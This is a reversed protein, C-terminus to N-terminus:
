DGLYRYGLPDRFLTFVRDLTQRESRAHGQAIPTEPGQLQNKSSRIQSSILGINSFESSKQTM